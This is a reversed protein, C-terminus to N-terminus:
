KTECIWKKGALIPIYKLIVPAIACQCCFYFVVFLISYIDSYHLSIYKTCPLVIEYHSCMIFLTSMSLTEIINSQIKNFCVSVFFMSVIGILGTLWYLFPKSTFTVVACTHPVGTYFYCLVLLTIGLLALCLNVVKKDEFLVVIRDIYRKGYMGIFFFPMFLLSFKCLFFMEQGHLVIGSFIIDVINVVLVKSKEFSTGGNKHHVIGPSVLKSWEM